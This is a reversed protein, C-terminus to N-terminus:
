DQGGLLVKFANGWAEMAECGAIGVDDYAGTVCEGAATHFAILDAGGRVGSMDIEQVVSLDKIQITM